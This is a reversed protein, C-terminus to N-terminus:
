PTKPFMNPTAIVKLDPSCFLVEAPGMTYRPSDVKVNGRAEIRQLDPNWVVKDCTLTLAPEKSSLRIGGEISLVSSGLKTEAQRALFEAAPVGQRFFQGKVEALTGGFHGDDNYELQAEGWEISWLKKRDEGDSYRVASGGATEAKRVEDKPKDDDSPAPRRASGSSGCGAILLSL